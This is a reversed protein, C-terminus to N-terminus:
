KLQKGLEFISSVGVAVEKPTRLRWVNKWKGPSDDNWILEKDRLVQLRYIATWFNLKLLEAVQRTSIGGKQDWVTVLDLAAQQKPTM